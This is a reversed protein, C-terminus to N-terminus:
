RQTVIVFFDLAGEPSSLVTNTRQHEKRGQVPSSYGSSGPTGLTLFVPSNELSSVIMM